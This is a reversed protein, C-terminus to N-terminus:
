YTLPYRSVLQSGRFKLFDVTQDDWIHIVQAEDAERREFVIGGNADVIVKAPPPADADRFKEAIDMAIRLVTGTPPIQDDDELLEPRHLWLLLKEDIVRQWAQGWRNPMRADFDVGTNVVREPPPTIQNCLTM